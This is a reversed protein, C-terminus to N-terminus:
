TLTIKLPRIYCQNCRCDPVFHQLLRRQQRSSQPKQWRYITPSFRFFPGNFFIYSLFFFSITKIMGQMTRKQSVHIVLLVCIVLSIHEQLLHLPTSIDSPSHLFIVLFIHSEMYPFCMECPVHRMDCIVTMDCFCTGRAIYSNGRVCLGLSIPIGQGPVIGVSIHQEVWPVCIVIDQGKGPFSLDSTIHTGGGLFCM